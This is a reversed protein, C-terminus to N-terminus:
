LNAVELSKEVMLVYNIAFGAEQLARDWFRTLVSIRPEKLVVLESGNFEQELLDVARGFYFNDFNSLYRRPRFGFM